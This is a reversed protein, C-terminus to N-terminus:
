PDVPILMGQCVAAEAFEAGAVGIAVIRAVSGAYAELAEDLTYVLVFLHHYQFLFVLVIGLLHGYQIDEQLTELVATYCTNVACRLHVVNLGEQVSM